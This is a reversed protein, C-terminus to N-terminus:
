DFDRTKKKEILIEYLLNHFLSLAIYNQRKIM